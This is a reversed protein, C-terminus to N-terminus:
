YLWHADQARSAIGEISRRSQKKIWAPVDQHRLGEICIAQAYGAFGDGNRVLDRPVSVYVM